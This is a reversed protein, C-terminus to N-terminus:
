VLTYTGFSVKPPTSLFRRPIVLSMSPGISTRTFYSVRKMISDARPPTRWVWTSFGLKQDLPSWAGRSEDFRNLCGHTWTFASYVTRLIEGLCLELASFALCFIVSHRIFGDGGPNHTTHPSNKIRKRPYIKSLVRYTLAM